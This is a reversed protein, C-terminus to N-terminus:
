PEHNLDHAWAAERVATVLEDNVWPKSLFSMVETRNIADIATHQDAQGTLLIQSVDPYERACRELFEVGSCRPMLQDSIVVSVNGIALHDWALQPETVAIVEFGARSLTRTLARGVAEEDDLILIRGSVAWRGRRLLAASALHLTRKAQVEM